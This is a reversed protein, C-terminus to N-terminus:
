IMDRLKSILDRNHLCSECLIPMGPKASCEPCVQFDAVLNRRNKFRLDVISGNQLCVEMGGPFKFTVGM